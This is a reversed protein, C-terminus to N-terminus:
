CIKTINEYYNHVFAIDEEIQNKLDDLNDFKKEPRVYYLFSVRVVKGYLDGNFDFIFTEASTPYDDGITPKNGINSIGMYVKDELKVQSVYVGKPPIVKENSIEMNVTPIGMTRGIHNGEVIQSEIFYPYGLLKAASKMNGTALEERIYTSSIDRGHNKIKEIVFVEFGFESALEKLTESNGMRKYGFHFDEGVVFSKVKLQKALMRVFDKPSMKMIEDSFPCELFYDVGIEAFLSRKEFNTTIVPIMKGTIHSKPQMDFTFVLAKYGKEKKLAFMQNILERHGEHLGDFKGLTVVTEENLQLNKIENFYQM